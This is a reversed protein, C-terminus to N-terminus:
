SYLCKALIAIITDLVEDPERDLTQTVMREAMWGLAEGALEPDLGQAQGQGQAKRIRDTLDDIWYGRMFARYSEEVEEDSATADAVAKLLSRNEALLERLRAISDASMDDGAGEADRAEALASWVDELLDLLVAERDPFFRYFATRTMGTGQMLDDVTLERFPKTKLERRAAELIQERTENRRRRNASRRSAFTHSVNHVRTRCM